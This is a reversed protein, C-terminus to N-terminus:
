TLGRARAQKGLVWFHPGTGGGDNGAEETGRAEGVETQAEPGSGAQPDRGRWGRRVEWTSGTVKAAHQEGYGPLDPWLGDRIERARM